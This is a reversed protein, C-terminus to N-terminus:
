WWPLKQNVRWKNYIRDCHDCLQVTYADMLDMKKLDEKSKKWNKSVLKAKSKFAIMQKGILDNKDLKWTNDSTNFM